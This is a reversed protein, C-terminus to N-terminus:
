HESGRLEQIEGNEIEEASNLVWLECIGFRSGELRQISFAGAPRWQRM